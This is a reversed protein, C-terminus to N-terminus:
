LQMICKEDKCEFHIMKVADQNILQKGITPIIFFTPINKRKKQSLNLATELQEESYYCNVRFSKRISNGKDSSLQMYILMKDFPVDEEVEWTEAMNLFAIHEIRSMPPINIPETTTGFRQLNSILDTSSHFKHPGEFYPSGYLEDYRLLM